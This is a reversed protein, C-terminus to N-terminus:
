FGTNCIIRVRNRREYLAGIINRLIRQQLTTQSGIGNLFPTIKVTIAVGIFNM